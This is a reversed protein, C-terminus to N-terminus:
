QKSPYFKPDKIITSVLQEVTFNTGDNCVVPKVDATYFNYLGGNEKCLYNAKAINMETNRLCGSLSLLLFLLFLHKM